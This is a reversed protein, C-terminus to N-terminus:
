YVQLYKGIMLFVLCDFFFDQPIVGSASDTVEFGTTYVYDFSAM